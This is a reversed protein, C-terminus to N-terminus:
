FKLLLNDKWNYDGSAIKELVKIRPILQTVPEKILINVLESALEPPINIPVSNDTTARWRASWPLKNYQPDLLVVAAGYQNALHYFGNDTCVVFESKALIDICKYIDPSEDVYVNFPLRSLDGYEIDKNAWATVKPFFITYDPLKQGIQRLLEGINDYLYGPTTSALFCSIIKNHEPKYRNALLKTSKITQPNTNYKRYDFALPGRFLLDPIIFYREKDDGCIEDQIAKDTLIRYNAVYEEPWQVLNFYGKFAYQLPKVVEDRACIHNRYPQNVYFSSQLSLIADGIGASTIIQPM